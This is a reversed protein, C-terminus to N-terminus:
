AASSTAGSDPAASSIPALQGAGRDDGLEVGLGGLPLRTGPAEDLLLEIRDLLPDDLAAGDICVLDLLQAATGALGAERV